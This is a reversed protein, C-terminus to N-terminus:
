AERAPRAHFILPPRAPPNFSGSIAHSGGNILLTGSHTGKQSIALGKLMGATQETVGNNADFFLGNYTGKVPLFPNPIFNAQLVM